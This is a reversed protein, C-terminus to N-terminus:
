KHPTANPDEPPRPLVLLSHQGGGTAFIISGSAQMGANLPIKTPVSCDADKGVGQCLAGTTGFGWAYADGKATVALCHHGGAAIHVVRNDSPLAEFEPISTPVDLRNKKNKVDEGLGLQGYNTRGFVLVRGDKTLIVSHHQGAAIQKIHSADFPLKVQKPVPQPAFIIEEEKEDIEDGEEVLGLGLQGFNNLGWAYLKKDTKSRAFYHFGGAAVMDFVNRKIHVPCPVLALSRLDRAKRASVRQGIRHDGWIMLDGRNNLILTSHEGSAVQTVHPLEAFLEPTPQVETAHGHKFGMIGNADRYCGWSYLKGDSTLATMHSDGCSVHTIDKGDLQTVPAPVIQDEDDETKRGLAGNDNCGWTWLQRKGDPTQCIAANAGGGSALALLHVNAMNKVPRPTETSEGGPVGLQFMENSGCAVIRVRAFNIQTVSEAAAATTRRRKPLPAEMSIDRTAPVAAAAPAPVAAEAQATGTM